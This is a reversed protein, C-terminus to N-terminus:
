TVLKEKSAARYFRWALLYVTILVMVEAFVGFIIDGFLALFNNAM